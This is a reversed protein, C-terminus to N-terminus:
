GPGVVTAGFKGRIYDALERAVADNGLPTFHGSPVGRHHIYLRDYVTARSHRKSLAVGVDIADVGLGHFIDLLHKRECCMTVVGEDSALELGHEILLFLVPTGDARATEVLRGLVARVLPDWRRFYTEADPRGGLRERVLTYTYSLFGLERRLTAYVEDPPPIPTRTLALARTDRDLVYLPKAFRYFTLPTRTYDLTWIAVILLDPRYARGRKLYKLVMQDIGYARVGLNLVEGRALRTELRHPFTEDDGVEAGYAFSDGVVAVRFVGPQREVPYGRPGRVHNPTDWGLEPDHVYGGLDTGLRGTKRLRGYDRVFARQWGESAVAPEYQRQAFLDELRYVRRLLAEALALSVLTSVVALSAAVVWSPLRSPRSM